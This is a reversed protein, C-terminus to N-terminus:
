RNPRKPPQVFQAYYYYTDGYQKALLAPSLTRHQSLYGQFRQYVEPDIGFSAFAEPNKEMAAYFICIAEQYLVPFREGREKMQNMYYMFAGLDKYILLYGMGYEFARRNDPHDDILFALASPLAITVDHANDTVPSYRRKEVIWDAGAAKEPNFFARQEKAWSRYFLTKELIKIYKGAAEYEENVLCAEVLRKMLRPQVCRESSLVGVFAFRQAANIHNVLWSVESAEILGLRTKPDHPIFGEEGVQPYRMLAENLRGEHGYALNVYVLADKDRAPHEGAHRVIRDWQQQRAYWDYRYAQELPHRKYVIFGGMVILLLLLLVVFDVGEKKFLRGRKRLAYAALAMLPFSCWIYWFSAPLPYEPHYLHKSFFAERVPIVYITRMAIVPLVVAWTLMGAVVGFRRGSRGVCFEYVGILVAALLHAPAAVLYVVLVILVGVVCRPAWRGCYSYVVASLVGFFVALVSAVSEVPYLWFLFVPLVAVVVPVQIGCRRLFLGFLGGIGSLFLALFVAAFFPFCFFQTVFSTIYETVGGPQRLLGIFYDGTLLFLSYQEMFRYWYRYNLEFFLFCGVAFFLLLWGNGTLLRRIFM